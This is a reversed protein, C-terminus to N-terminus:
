QFPCVLTLPRSGALRAQLMNVRTGRSPLDGLCHDGRREHVPWWPARTSTFDAAGGALDVLLVLAEIAVFKVPRFSGRDHVHALLVLLSRFLLDLSAPADTHLFYQFVLDREGHAVVRLVGARLLHELV